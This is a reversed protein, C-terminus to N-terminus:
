NLNKTHAREATACFLMEGSLLMLSNRVSGWEARRTPVCALVLMCELMNLKLVCVCSWVCATDVLLM